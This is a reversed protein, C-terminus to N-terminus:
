AVRSLMATWAVTVSTRSSTRSTMWLPSVGRSRRLLLEHHWQQGLGSPVEGIVEGLGLAAHVLPDVLQSGDDARGVLVLGDEAVAHVFQGPQASAELGGPLASMGLGGSGM